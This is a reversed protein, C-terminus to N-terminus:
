HRGPVPNKDEDPQQDAAADEGSAKGEPDRIDPIVTGGRRRRELLPSARSAAMLHTDEPHLVQGLFLHAGIEMRDPEGGPVVLVRNREGAV